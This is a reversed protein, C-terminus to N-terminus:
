MKPNVFYISLFLVYVVAFIGWEVSVYYGVVLPAIIFAASFALEVLLRIIDIILVFADGVAEKLTKEYKSIETIHEPPCWDPCTPIKM